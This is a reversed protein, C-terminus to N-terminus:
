IAHKQDEGEGRTKWLSYVIGAALVSVTVALSFATPIKVGLPVLSVKIGVLVLLTALSYQLYAFRNM